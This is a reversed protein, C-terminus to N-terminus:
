ARPKGGPRRRRRPLLLLAAVGAALAMGLGPEPLAVADADASRWAADQASADYALSWTALTTDYELVDEDGFEVGGLSESGDFSLWLDGDPLRSAGDLDLADPVGAGAAEFVVTWTSPADLRVLDSDDVFVAGPLEVGVDFSLWLNGALDRTLADCRAGAPVGNAEADLEISFSAGTQRVVDGPRAVVPGPLEVTTEFCLLRDSGDIEYGSLESAAPFPGLPELSLSGSDDVVVDHDSPVLSASALDFTVDPSLSVPVQASSVGVGLALVAAQIPAARLLRSRARLRRAITYM